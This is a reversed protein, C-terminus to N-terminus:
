TLTDLARNLRARVEDALAQMEPNPVVQFIAQPDVASVVVQGDSEAVVVNCPLMLGIAPELTIAKHALQPNCAGLIVYPSVEVGLKAALTAKMDIETLVGFGEAALAEKVRAMAQDWPLSLRRTLGYTPDGFLAHTTAM